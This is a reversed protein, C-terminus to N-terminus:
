LITANQLYSLTQHQTFCLILLIDPPIPECRESRCTLCQYNQTHANTLKYTYTNVTTNVQYMMRQYHLCVLDRFHKVEYKFQCLLKGQHQSIGAEFRPQSNATWIKKTTIRLGELGIDLYYKSQARKIKDDM